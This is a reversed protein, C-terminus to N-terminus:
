RCTSSGTRGSLTRINESPGSATKADLRVTRLRSSGDDAQEFRKLLTRQLRLFAAHSKARTASRELVYGCGLVACSGAVSAFLMSLQQQSMELSLPGAKWGGLAGMLAASGVILLAGAFTTQGM